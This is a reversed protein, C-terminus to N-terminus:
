FFHALLPVDLLVELPLQEVFFVNDLLNLFLVGEHLLLNGFHPCLSFLDGLFHEFHLLFKELITSDDSLLARSSLLLWNGAIGLFYPSSILDLDDM